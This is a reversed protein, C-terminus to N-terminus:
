LSKLTDSVFRGNEARIDDMPKINWIHRAYDMVSRDSSFYGMGAINLIASKAWAKSDGYAASVKDQTDVYSRYDALVQYYDGIPSLVDHYRSPEDPSFTGNISWVLYRALLAGIVMHVMVHDTIAM